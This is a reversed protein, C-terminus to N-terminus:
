YLWDILQKWFHVSFCFSWKLKQYIRIQLFTLYSLNLYMVSLVDSVYECFFFFKDYKEKALLCLGQSNLYQKWTYKVWTDFTNTTKAHLCVNTVKLYVLRKTLTKNDRLLVCFWKVKCLSAVEWPDGQILMPLSGFRLRALHANTSSFVCTQFGNKCNKSLLTLSRVVVYNMNHYVKM